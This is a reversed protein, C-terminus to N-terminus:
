KYFIQAFNNVFSVNSMYEIEIQLSDIDVAM